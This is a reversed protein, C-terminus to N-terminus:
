VPNSMSMIQSQRSLRQCFFGCIAGIELLLRSNEPNFVVSYPCGKM